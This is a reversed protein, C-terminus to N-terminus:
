AWRPGTMLTRRMMRVTASMASRTHPRRVAFRTAATTAPAPSATSMTSAPPTISSTGSSMRECAVSRMSRTDDDTSVWMFPPRVGSFQVATHWSSSGSVVAAATAMHSSSASRAITPPSSDFCRTPSGFEGVVLSTIVLPLICVKEYLSSFSHSSASSSAALVGRSSSYGTPTATGSM